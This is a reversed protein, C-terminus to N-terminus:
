WNAGSSSIPPQTSMTQWRWRRTSPRSATANPTARHPSTSRKAMFGSKVRMLGTLAPCIKILTSKGAGNHGLLAVVEGAQLSVDVNDVAKIGGFAISIGRMDVLPPEHSQETSIAV